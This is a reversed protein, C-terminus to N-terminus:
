KRIETIDRGKGQTATRHFMVSSYIVVNETAPETKSGLPM